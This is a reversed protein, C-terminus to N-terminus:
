EYLIEGLRRYSIYNQVGYAHTIIIYVDDVEQSKMLDSLPIDVKGPTYHRIDVKNVEDYYPMLYPLFANSYSDGIVLANRGRSFGTEYQVWSRTDGGLYAYYNRRHYHMLNTTGTREGKAMKYGIANQLPYLLEMDDATRLKTNYFKKVMYEYEDYPVIPLGVTEICKNVVKVAGRPMWHHDSSFYLDEKALVGEELLAPTNIYYVGDDLHNEMGKDINEYWGVYDYSDRLMLGINSRPVNTYFLFGDEPLCSKYKNLIKAVKKINEESAYELRVKGGRRTKLWFGYKTNTPAEEKEDEEPLKEEDSESVVEEDEPLFDDEADIDSEDASEEDEAMEESNIEGQLNEKMELDNLLLLDEDTNMSFSQVIKDSFGVINDRGFVGDSLFSEFGSSFDGSFISKASVEPFGSLTRNETESIREEKEAFVLLAVGLLFFVVIWWYVLVFSFKNKM